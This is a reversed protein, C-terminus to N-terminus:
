LLDGMSFLPMYMGLMIAGIIGGIVLMLIPELLQSLLETKHDLQQQYHEGVHHLMEKLKGAQEGVELMQRASAPFVRSSISDAFKYGQQIGFLISKIEEILLGDGQYKAKVQWSKTQPLFSELAQKLPVGSVLMLHLNRCFNTLRSLQVIHRVLPITAMLTSKLRYLRASQKFQSNFLYIVMALLIPIHWLYQQLGRSLALLLATFFPLPKDGYMAAFQPVIFLLLLTTLLVSVGLVLLPYLLIKQLKRQQNLSQQQLQALRACVQPLRGTLEGVRILQQEQLSLFQEHRALSQSLSLGSEIDGLLQRLWQHLAVNTCNQKMMQLCQKLPVSAQLLNALQILLEYIESKKPKHSFQWNQQLKINQLGQRMLNQKAQIPSEAVIEGSQKQGFRDVARWRFQKMRYTSKM